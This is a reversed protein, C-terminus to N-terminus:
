DNKIKKLEKILYKVRNIYNHNKVKINGSNRVKKAIKKNKFIFRIKKNLEKKTSYMFCSINEKFFTNQEKSRTTLMLGNYAPIEFTKMNHSSLNQKRLINLTIASSNMLNYIKQGYIHNSIVSNRIKKERFRSWNGGYIKKKEIIYNLTVFREKEYTGLFFIQNKLKLKKKIIKNINLSDYGFPLYLINSKFKKKLKKLIKKSWICFLDFESICDIFNKNSIVSNKTDLPDDPFINVYFAEGNM